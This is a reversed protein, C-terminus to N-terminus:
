AITNRVKTQYFVSPKTGVDELLHYMRKDKSLEAVKSNADNVDGFQIAGTDCAQMCASQVEGDRVKRGEKKAELKGLQIRQVCFSCKEMVGRSRVTVDPNLVMKGLDENMAYNVGFQDPNENYLFWNFRRVKYPCNNACYRTGICRNYAMHNLGEASHVTAAVPCVTECPAHNCHQCMVPQFVVEPSESPVEMQAYMKIAGLGEEKAKEKTMNSSYYRDIRLWHMDRSMRMEDKGVVPVNNEAHCAIVCAGCGNCLNLDISMNWFHGTEHDFDTWLTAKDSTLKEGITEFLTRENWGKNDDTQAPKNIFTDLDIEQVIRRGMMTHHLQICAFEHWGSQVEIQLNDVHHQGNIAFPFANVGVGDGARGVNTRGYGLALGVTNYAQGPQILVPVNEVVVDGAKLTVLSGDLAGNSRTKNKLGLEEAQAASITLYNDWTTRTIPDPFEQLWPNNSLNGSGMGTKTYLVLEIGDSPNNVKVSGALSVADIEQERVVSKDKKFFGDHLCTDFNTKASWKERIFSAYDHNLGACHLLCAQWQRTDFLPRITPQAFSYHGTFPESDSWSELAHNTAGVYNCLSATEDNKESFSVSCDVKSLADAFKKGAAHHYVPNTQAMILVGVRGAAMDKMLADFANDDGQRLNNALNPNITTGINSLMQNIGYALIWNAEDNGGCVVLSSGQASLLDKAIADLQADISTSKAAVSANDTAKAIRNYLGALIVGYESAKVRYRIDANSGTLSMNAEIQIHRSMDKGPKRRSAYATSVGQGIWDGLFDAGVSVVRSAKTFDFYPFARNGFVKASADLANSYSVADIAVHSANEYKDAFAKFARKSSPSNISSTLVVIRKGSANAKDLASMLDKDFTSWSTPEGNKLPAQLRTADYLNLVSAQVRANVNGVYPADYNPDLKIPRGERTKVLVSAFDYGDDYSSAYYNAIGPVLSDPAVVYPISEVVPAECAALTAAATSFGLFKLFDRRSTNSGNQEQQSLFEDVPIETPFENQKLSDVVNPNELEEIGKWYTKESAMDLTIPNNITVSVM